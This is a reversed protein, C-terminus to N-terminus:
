PLVVEVTTGRDAASTVHLAGGLACAQARMSTLGFGNDARAADFGAGEDRVTLRWRDTYSLTVEIANPNAHKAANTVAERAVHLLAARTPGDARASGPVGAADFVLRTNRAAAQASAEIARVIPEPDGALRASGPYPVEGVATRPSAQSALSRLVARAGALAREGASVVVTAHPEDPHRSSQSPGDSHRSSQSPGDTHRSAQAQSGGSHGNASPSPRNTHGNALMRANALALSLDQMILDHIDAAVRRREQELTRAVTRRETAAYLLWGALLGSTLLGGGRLGRRAPPESAPRNRGV